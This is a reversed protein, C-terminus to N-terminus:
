TFDDYKRTGECSTPLKQIAEGNFASSTAFCITRKLPCQPDDAAIWGEPKKYLAKKGRSVSVRPLPVRQSLTPRLFCKRLFLCLVSWGGEEGGDVHFIQKSKLGTPALAMMNTNWGLTLRGVRRLGQIDIWSLCPFFLAATKPLDVSMSLQLVDTYNFLAEPESLSGRFSSVALRFWQVGSSLYDREFGPQTHSKRSIRNELWWVCTHWTLDGTLARLHQSLHPTPGWASYTRQGSSM